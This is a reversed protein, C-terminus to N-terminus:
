LDYTNELLGEWNITDVIDSNISLLFTAQTVANTGYNQVYFSPEVTSCLYDSTSNYAQAKLVNENSTASGCSTVADMIRRLNPSEDPNLLALTRDPCIAYLSPFFSIKFLAAMNHNNVIPYPIGEAWNGLTVNGTQEDNCEDTLCDLSTVPDAEIM